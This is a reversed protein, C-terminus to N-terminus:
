YEHIYIAYIHMMYFQPVQMQHLRGFTVALEQLPPHLLLDLQKTLADDVERHFVENSPHVGNAGGKRGQQHWIQALRLCLRERRPRM